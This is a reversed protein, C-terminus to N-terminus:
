SGKQMEAAQAQLQNAQQDMDDAQAMFQPILSQLKEDSITGGRAAAKAIQAQRYAPDKLRGAEDRMQQAGKHMQKAGQAMQQAAQGKQVKANARAQNALQQAQGAEQMATWQAQKADQGDADAWTKDFKANAKAQKAQDRALKADAKALKADIKAQEDASLDNGDRQAREADRKAQDQDRKVQEADRKKQDEDRKAQEADRKAQEADQQAQQADQQDQLQDASPPTPSVDNVIVDRTTTDPVTVDGQPASTTAPAADSQVTAQPADSTVQQVPATQLALRIIRAQPRVLEVAALPTAVAICALVAMGTLVPAARRKGPASLILGIRRALMGKKQGGKMMGNAVNPTKAGAFGILASAYATRDVRAVAYVDVAEESRQVLEGNLWWVLPNFWFVAAAIRALMLFLWDRRHIHGAEHALVAEADEPRELAGPNLLVVPRLGWSLPGSVRESVLLRAKPCNRQLAQRWAPHDVRSARASVRALAAVDFILRVLLLGAIAAYALIAVETWDIPHTVPSQALAVPLSIEAAAAPLVIPAPAEGTEIRLAPLLLALLPMALVLVVSMRLLTVRAAPTHGRVMWALGLGLASVLASKWAIALMLDMM